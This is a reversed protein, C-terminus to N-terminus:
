KPNRLWARIAEVPWLTSAGVKTPKPFTGKSVKRWITTRSLPVVGILASLRVYGEQPLGTQQQKSM